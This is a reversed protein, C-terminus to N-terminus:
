NQTEHPLEMVDCKLADLQRDLYYALTSIDEITRMARGILLRHKEFTMEDANMKELKSWAIFLWGPIDHAEQRAEDIIEALPRGFSVDGYVRAGAKIRKSFAEVFKPLHEKIAGM